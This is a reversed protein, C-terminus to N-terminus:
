WSGARPPQRGAIGRSSRSGPTPVVFPYPRWRLACTESAGPGGSRVTCPGRSPPCLARGAWTRPPARKSSRLSRRRAGPAGTRAKATPAPTTPPLIAVSSRPSWGRSPGTALSVDSLLVRTGLPRSRHPPRRRYPHQASGCRCRSPPRRTGRRPSSVRRSGAKHRRARPPPARRAAGPADDNAPRAPRPLIWAGRRACFGASPHRVGLFSLGPPAPLESSPRPPHLHDREAGLSRPNFHLSRENRAHPARAGGLGTRQVPSVALRQRSALSALLAASIQRRSGGARLQRGQTTARSVVQSWGGLCARREGPRRRPAERGREHGVCEPDCGNVIARPLRGGIGTRADGLRTAVGICRPEGARASGASGTIPTRERLRGQHEPGISDCVGRGLKHGGRGEALRSRVRYRRVCGTRQGGSVRAGPCIAPVWGRRLAARGAM